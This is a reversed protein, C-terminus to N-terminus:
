KNLVEGCDIVGLFIQHLKELWEPDDQTGDDHLSVLALGLAEAEDAELVGLAGDIRGILDVSLVTEVHHPSELLLGPQRLDPFGGLPVLQGLRSEVEVELVKGWHGGLLLQCVEEGLKPFDVVQLQHLVRLPLIHPIPEDAELGLLPSVLRLHIPLVQQEVPALQEDALELGLADSLRM